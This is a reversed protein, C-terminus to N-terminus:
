LEPYRARIEAIKDLWEQETAEGRQAKFFLPDAELQYAQRRLTAIQEPTPPQPPEPDPPPVYEAVPGFDGAAAAAFIARGHAETDTPSATFPLEEAIADWKITLDILTHEANAWVPNKAYELHM